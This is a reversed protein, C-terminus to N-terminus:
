HIRIRTKFREFINIKRELKLNEVAKLTGEQLSPVSFVLSAEFRAACKQCPTSIL